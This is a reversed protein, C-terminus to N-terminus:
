GTIKTANILKEGVSKLYQREKINFKWISNSSNRSKKNKM